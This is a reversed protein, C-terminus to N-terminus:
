TTVASSGTLSATPVNVTSGTGAGVDTSRCTAPRAIIRAGATPASNATGQQFNVRLAQFMDSGIVFKTDAFGWGDNAETEDGSPSAPQPVFRTDGRPVSRTPKPALASRATQALVKGALGLFDDSRSATV